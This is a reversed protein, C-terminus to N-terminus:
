KKLIVGYFGAGGYEIAEEKTYVKGLDIWEDLPLPGPADVQWPEAMALFKEKTRVYIPQGIAAYFNFMSKMKDTMKVPDADGDCVFMRSGPSAWDYFTRLAHKLTEDSLFYAIGNFGIVVKRERGFMEEVLKSQLLKEPKGADCEVYRVDPNGGLIEQAYEVTVPDIDSYIVKTGPPVIEHIHDMTPLGSAFDVFKDFGEGVLHRIAEGLFWRILLVSKSMFPALEIVKQAAQRDVEFNHHGGLLYDYIRGPNPRTPDAITLFDDSKEM